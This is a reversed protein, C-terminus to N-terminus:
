ATAIGMTEALNRLRRDLTLVTAHERRALVLYFMDYVSHRRAAAERLTEDALTEIPEFSHVISVARHLRAIATDVSIEGAAVYKWLGSTVEAVFLSPAIVDSAADIVDLLESDAESLVSAPVAASADLVLKM